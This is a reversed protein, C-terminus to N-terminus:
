NSYVLSYLAQFSPSPVSSSLFEPEAAAIRNKLFKRKGQIKIRRNQM